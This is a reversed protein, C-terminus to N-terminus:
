FPIDEDPVKATDTRTQTQAPKETGQTQADDSKRDLLQIANGVIETVYRDQGNKDQYKRTRLRGEIYCLSGKHVYDQVVEAMRGSFTVRHWETESVVEEGSRYKRSTAVSINVFITDQYYRVEPEGGVYGIIIAKNVSASM